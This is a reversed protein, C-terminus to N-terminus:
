KAPVYPIKTGTTSSSQFWGQRSGLSTGTNLLSGFAGAELGAAQGYGQSRTMTGATQLRLKELGGTQRLIAKDIAGQMETDIQLELNTGTDAQFGSAASGARQASITQKVQRDIKAEEIKTAADVYNAQYRLIDQQYKSQKLAQNAGYLQSGSQIASGALMIILPWM